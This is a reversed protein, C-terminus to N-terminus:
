PAMISAKPTLCRRFLVIPVVNECGGSICPSLHVGCCSFEEEVFSKGQWAAVCVLVSSGVSKVKAVSGDPISAGAKAGRKRPVWALCLDAASLLGCLQAEIWLLKGCVGIACDNVSTVVAM